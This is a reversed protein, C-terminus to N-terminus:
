KGGRPYLEISVPDSAWEYARFRAPDPESLDLGDGDQLPIPRGAAGLMDRAMRVRVTVPKPPALRLMCEPGILHQYMIASGPRDEWRVVIAGCAEAVEHPPEDPHGAFRLREPNARFENIEFPLLDSM